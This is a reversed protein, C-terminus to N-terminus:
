KPKKERSIADLKRSQQEDYHAQIQLSDELDWNNIKIGNHNAFASVGNQRAIILKHIVDEIRDGLEVKLHNIHPNKRTEEDYQFGIKNRNMWDEDQIVSEFSSTPSHSDIHKYSHDDFHEIFQRIESIANNLNRTIEEKNSTSFSHAVYPIDPIPEFGSNEVIRRYRHNSSLLEYTYGKDAKQFSIEFIGDEEFVLYKDNAAAEIFDVFSKVEPALDSSGEKNKNTFEITSNLQSFLNTPSKFSFNETEGIFFQSDGNSDKSYRIAMGSEYFFKIINYIFPKNSESFEFLVYPRQNKEEHGACCSATSVKKNFCNLLLNRLSEDGESFVTAAHEYDTIESFKVPNGDNLYEYSM